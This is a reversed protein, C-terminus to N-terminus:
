VLAAILASVVPLSVLTAFMVLRYKEVGTRNALETLTPIPADSM